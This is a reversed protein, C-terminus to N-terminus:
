WSVELGQNELKQVLGQLSDQEPNYRVMVKARGKCVNRSPDLEIAVKVIQLDFGKCLKRLGGEDADSSLGALHLDVVTWARSSYASEYFEPSAMSSQLHAQHILQTHMGVMGKTKEENDTVMSRPRESDFSSSCGFINSKHLEERKRDAASGQLAGKRGCALETKSNTWDQHVVIKDEPGGLPKPRRGANASDKAAECGFLNSYNHNYRRKTDYEAEEADVRCREEDLAATERQEPSVRNLVNSCKEHYSRDKYSMQGEDTRGPVSELPHNHWNFSSPTLKNSMDHATEPAASPTKRGFLESSLETQRRMIHDIHEDKDYQMVISGLHSEPKTKTAPNPSHKGKPLVESDLFQLKREHASYEPDRPVFTKPEARLAKDEYNGFLEATTQDRRRGAPANHMRDQNQPPDFIRGGLVSNAYRSRAQESPLSNAKM